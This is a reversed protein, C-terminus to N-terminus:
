TACHLDAVSFHKREPCCWYTQLGITVPTGPKGRDRTFNNKPKSSFNLLQQFKAIIGDDTGM